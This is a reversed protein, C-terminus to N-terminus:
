SVPSQFEVSERFATKLVAYLIDRSCFKPTAAFVHHTGWRELADILRKPSYAEPHYELAFSDIRAADEATLSEVIELEAGECDMKCLRVRTIAEQRLLEPLSVASVEVADGAALGLHQAFETSTTNMGGGLQATRYLTTTGAKAKVATPFLKVRSDFGNATINKKFLSANEPDPEFAYVSCGQWAAYCSFFGQNAGVDIVVDGKRLPMAPVDYDHDFWVEGFMRHAAFKCQCTVGSRRDVVRIEEDARASRRKRLIELPNGYNEVSALLHSLRSLLSSPM